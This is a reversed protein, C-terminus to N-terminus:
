RTSPVVARAWAIRRPRRLYSLGIRVLDRRIYSDGIVLEHTAPPVKEKWKKHM